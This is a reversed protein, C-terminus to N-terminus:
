IDFDDDDSVPYDFDDEPESRLPYDMVRKVHKRPVPLPNELFRVKHETETKERKLEEKLAKERRLIEEEMDEAESEMSATQEEQIEGSEMDEADSEASAIQEEQIDETKMVEAESEMSVTQEGWTEGIEMDEAESEASATQEEWTERIEMDEAESEASATQEEQIERSEMNEAESEESAIQEEQIEGAEASEPSSDMLDEIVLDDEPSNEGDAEEVIEPIKGPRLCQAVGVGALLVLLVYTYFFGQGEEAFIGFCEGAMVAYLVVVGPSIREEQ